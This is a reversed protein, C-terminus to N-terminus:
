YSYHETPKKCFDLDFNQRFGKMRLVSKLKKSSVPTKKTSHGEYIRQEIKNKACNRVRVLNNARSFTHIKELNQELDLQKLNKLYQLKKIRHKKDVRAVVTHVGQGSWFLAELSMLIQIFTVLHTKKIQNKKSFKHSLVSAKTDSFTIYSLSILDIIFTTGEDPSSFFELLVPLLPLTQTISFIVPLM